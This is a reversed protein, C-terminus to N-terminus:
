KFPLFGIGLQIFSFVQPNDRMNRSFINYAKYRTSAFFSIRPMPSYTLGAESYIGWTKSNLDIVTGQGTFGGEFDGSYNFLTFHTGWELYGKIKTMGLISFRFRLGSTFVLEKMRGTGYFCDACGQEKDKINNKGYGISNTWSWRHFHRNYFMRYFGKPAKPGNLTQKNRELAFPAVGIEHKFVPNQQALLHLSNVIFFILLLTKRHHM